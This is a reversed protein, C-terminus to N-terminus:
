NHHTSEATTTHPNIQGSAHPLKTGWSPISSADGTNCPLNRFGPGGSIDGCTSIQFALNNFNFGCTRKSM